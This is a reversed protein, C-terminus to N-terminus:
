PPTSKRDPTQSVLPLLEDVHKPLSFVKAKILARVKMLEIWINAAQCAIWSLWSWKLSSHLFNNVLSKKKKTVTMMPSICEHLSVLAAHTSSLSIYSSFNKPFLSPFLVRSICQKQGVKYDIEQLRKVELPSM